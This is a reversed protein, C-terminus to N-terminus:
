RDRYTTSGTNRFRKSHIAQAVYTVAVKDGDNILYAIEFVTAKGISIQYVVFYAACDICNDLLGAFHFASAILQETTDRDQKALTTLLTKAVIAASATPM